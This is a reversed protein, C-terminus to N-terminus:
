KWSFNCNVYNNIKYLMTTLKLEISLKEFNLLWTLLRMTSVISIIEWESQKSYNELYKLKVVAFKWWSCKWSCDVLLLKVNLFLFILDGCNEYFFNNMKIWDIIRWLEIVVYVDKNDVCTKWELNFTEM